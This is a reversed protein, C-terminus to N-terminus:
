ISGDKSRGRCRSKRAKQKSLKLFESRGVAPNPKEWSFLKYDGRRADECKLTAMVSRHNAGQVAPVAGSPVARARTRSSAWPACFWRFDAVTGQVRAGAFLYHNGANRGRWREGHLTKWRATGRVTRSKHLLGEWPGYARWTPEM